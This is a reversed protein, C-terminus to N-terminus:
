AMRRLLDPSQALLAAWEAEEIAELLERAIRDQEDEPLKSVQEWAEQLLKTM